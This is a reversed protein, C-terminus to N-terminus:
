SFKWRNGCNQCECFTTMLEDASRTQAQTYHVKEEKCKGCQMTASGMAGPIADAKTMGYVHLDLIIGEKRVHGRMTGEHLFGAKELLRRSAANGDFVRAWLREVDRNQWVWQTFAPLAESIIGRGWYAESLWYGIEATHTELDTGPKIGIGGIASDTMPDVVAFNQPSGNAAITLNHNIWNHADQLNYPHPFNNTMWQSINHNDGQQAVAAADGPVYQRIKSLSLTLIPTSMTQSM